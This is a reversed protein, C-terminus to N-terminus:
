GSFTVLRTITATFRRVVRAAVDVLAM